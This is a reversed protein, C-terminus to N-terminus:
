KNLHGKIEALLEIIKTNDAHIVDILRQNGTNIAGEISHLHNGNLKQLEGLMSSSISSPDGGKKAKLYCFFEKIAFYFIAGVVSVQLIDNM